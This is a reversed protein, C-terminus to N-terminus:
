AHSDEFTKLPFNKSRSLLMANDLAAYEFSFDRLLREPPVFFLATALGDATMTDGAIVWTAIIQNAPQLTAPNIIHHMDQWKRRSGSSACLSGNCLMTLGIVESTDMPNELGVEMSRSDDSRHVIDGSANIVFSTLGAQRLLEAVVDVLYGKGAAGFDLLVPKAVTIHKEDYSIVDEWKPPHQLKKQEFSYAADYGADAMVQGILPTVLGDTARYLREYLQMIAFGDTSLDYTGAKRSMVTVLSDDRFRSWAKDFAETRAQVQRLLAALGGSAMEQDLRIEWHTGIAEFALTKQRM